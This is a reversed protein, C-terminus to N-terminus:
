TVTFSLIYLTCSFMWLRSLMFALIHLTRGLYNLHMPPPTSMRARCGRWTSEAGNVAWSLFNLAGRALPGQGLVARQMCACGALGFTPLIRGSLLMCIVHWAKTVDPCVCSESTRRRMYPYSVFIWLFLLFHLTQASARTAKTHTPSPCGDPFVSVVKCCRLNYM